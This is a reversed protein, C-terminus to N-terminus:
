FNNGFLGGELRYWMLDIKSPLMVLPMLKPQELSLDGSLDYRMGCFCRLGPGPLTSMTVDLVFVLDVGAHLLM